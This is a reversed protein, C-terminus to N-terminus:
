EPDVPDPPGWIAMAGTWGAALALGGIERIAETLGMMERPGLVGVGAVRPLLALGGVLYAGCVAAAARAPLADAAFLASCVAALGYAGGWVFPDPDNYQLAAMTGFLLAVGGSAARM